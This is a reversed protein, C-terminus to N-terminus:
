EDVVNFCRQDSTSINAPDTKESLFYTVWSQLHKAELYYVEIASSEIVKQYLSKQNNEKLIRDLLLELHDYVLPLTREDFRNLVDNWYRSTYMWM